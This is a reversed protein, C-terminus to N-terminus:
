VRKAVFIMLEIVDLHLFEVGEERPETLIRRGSKGMPKSKVVLSELIPASLGWCRWRSCSWRRRGRGNIVKAFTDFATNRIILGELFVMEPM